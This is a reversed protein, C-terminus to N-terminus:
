FEREREASVPAQWSLVMVEALTRRFADSLTRFVSRFGIDHTGQCIDSTKPSSFFRVLIVSHGPHGFCLRLIGPRRM